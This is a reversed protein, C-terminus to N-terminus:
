GSRGLASGLAAIAGVVHYFTSAPAATGILAGDPRRVDFWLGSVSTALYPLFSLAAAHAM